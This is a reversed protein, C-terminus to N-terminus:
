AENEALADARADAVARAGWHAEQPTPPRLVYAAGAKMVRGVIWPTEKTWAKDIQQRVVSWMINVEPLTEYSYAGAPVQDVENVMLVYCITAERPPLAANLTLTEKRMPFMAVLKGVMRETASTAIAPATGASEFPDM